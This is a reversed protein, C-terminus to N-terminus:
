KDTDWHTMKLDKVEIEESKYFKKLSKVVKAGIEWDKLHQIQNITKGAM